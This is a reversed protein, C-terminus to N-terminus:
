RQDGKDPEAWSAAEARCWELEETPVYLIATRGAHTRLWDYADGRASDFSAFACRSLPIVDGNEFVAVRYPRTRAPRENVEVAIRLAQSRPRAGTPRSCIDSM